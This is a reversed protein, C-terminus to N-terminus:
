QRLWNEAFYTFDLMDVTGNMNFDAGECWGPSSCTNEDDWWTTLVAFDEINVKGDDNIDTDPRVTLVNLEAMTTWPNGNVESLAVLRVYQSLICDFSVQKETKSNVFTGSAIATGWDDTNNSVYFEYDKIMGNEGGPEEEQRPLYRFGCIDYFGGLDIQIEHPHRPDPDTLSWETHWITAPNGDFSDTAPRDVDGMEESDVYLLEWGTQDIPLCAVGTFVYAGIEWGSGYNNQDLTSVNNPWTSNKDLGQNYPSGLNIGRDIAPSTPQLTFDSGNLSGATLSQWGSTKTLQPVGYPPDNPGQADVDPTKSWLNNDFDISNSPIWVEPVDPDTNWFINNKVASNVYPGDLNFFSYTRSGVVINNYVFYNDIKSDVQNAGLFIGRYCYAVLNNYVYINNQYGDPDGSESNVGIGGNIYNEWPPTGDVIGYCLNYRVTMYENSHAIYINAKNAYCINYEFICNKNYHYSGIGEGYNKYVVNNHVLINECGRNVAISAPYDTGPAEIRKRGVDTVDCGTIIGTDVGIFSIGANFMKNAEIRYVNINSGADINLGRGGSNILRIDQVTVYKQKYVTMLCDPNTPFTYEGDFVPKNGSVGIVGDGYYAGIVVRNDETGSWDVFLAQEEWTEGCKFYVDDGTQFSYNNVKSITRWATADSQGNNTDNGGTADVYYNVASVEASSIWMVGAVIALVLRKKM